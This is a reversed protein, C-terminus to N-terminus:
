FLHLAAIGGNMHSPSPILAWNCSRIRVRNETMLMLYFRGEKRQAGRGKM